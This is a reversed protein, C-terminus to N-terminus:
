NRKEFKVILGDRSQLILSRPDIVFPKCNPSEKIIFDKVLSALAFKTQMLGFRMGVCIRPGEGFPLYSCKPRKNIEEDTFRLPDFVEPDPFIEPDHHISYLPVLVSTGPELVVPKKHGPLTPMVYSKTCTKHLALAPPNLRLTEQIVMDLYKMESLAEYSFQNDHKELVKVIEEHLKKQVDPNRGVEWLVFSLVTSSSEYGDVFFSIAHGTIQDVSLNYKDQVSLLIQLMDEHPLKKNQRSKLNERVLKRIWQDVDKPLLSLTMIKVFFPFFFLLMFKIGMWFSPQFMKKGMERYECKPNEFCNANLSFACSVVNETTFKASVSKADVDDSGQREIYKILKDCATQMIPFVGKIKNATFMPSMIARSQKWKQEDKQVFPNERVLDNPDDNIAVDNAFFSSFDKVLVNKLLETDRILIAPTFSKFYGVYPLHSYEKYWKNSLVGVHEKQSVIPGLNGVLFTPKPGPVGRRQWYSYHWKQWLYVLVCIILLLTLFMKFLKAYTRLSFCLVFSQETIIFDKVLSALGFKTQLLGFKMGVCIRPGEGFPMFSCKPRTSIMEETFRLPDFIEPDPFIEPDHHISYVPILVSTGPELVVPQKQGPLKPMVYPKTCLKQFGVGFIRLTEMVVMDLYEMESIAEYSFSNDYKELVRVIEEYLRKQVEPNRGVQWLVSSLVTSTTEYGDVFFSMALGAIQGETLNYKDQVGLLVQMMDEQKLKRNQRSLINERVLKRAWKEAEESFVAISFIKAVIPFFFLAMFKIGTWFTRQFINKGMRRFESNPDEFCNANLSFACSGVNETTFKACLSKADIDTTSSQLRLYEIMKDCSAQLSPFIGKMKTPTFMPSMIARNLKWKQEDRIVFPNESILDNPNNPEAIDNAQFSTFDKTLMNKVIEIDRVLIAPRFAKYYGVYPVDSFEKYWKDALERSHETQSVIPGLNGVLFTPKPGPVGRRQWYSYNWKQWVYVLVCLILLLTFFMTNIAVSYHRKEFRIILGDRAQLVIGRPDIVFPKCNPSETIAFDKVLSALGFKVQLLAFKMGICIRPGDGFALYSCKPRKQREEETFRLPDFVEPDPYIEPDHHISYIPILVPTGPELVVPEKQGPLKPMVYPKTCSKHLTLGASNLRLTEQVVMDLYEMESIAEYSFSNDYKELVRVIEEYLREQVEPNRGVQWLAFSLVTSSTEYGDVFFSMSHGAIQSETMKYKDQVGLLVQLLDEQKIKRNQRSLINERVLRRAWQNTEKTFLSVSFFKMIFPFFFIVMFKIGMWFSPQFIKKGMERFESKPDEFCNADLSFACAAVNETTFKASMSKADIDKSSGQRDIYKKMKDCSAQISSFIGKLKTTTFMPSMIARSQKWRQEDRIGFPNDALLENPDNVEAIDNASFSSYDKILVNKVIEVDRLLIAPTFTKYYGVYPVNPYDNYWKDAVLGSHEKQAIIAGLNGVFFTPKPGPVGKRQWYSYNWKQWLYVLGCLILLLTFFM